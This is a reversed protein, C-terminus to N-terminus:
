CLADHVFDKVTAVYEDLTVGSDGPWEHIANALTDVSEHISAIKQGRTYCDLCCGCEWYDSWLFEGDVPMVAFEWHRNCYGCHTQGSM